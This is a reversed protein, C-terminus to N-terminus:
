LQWCSLIPFINSTWKKSKLLCLRLSRSSHTKLSERQDGNCIAEELGYDDEESNCNTKERSFNEEDLENSNFLELSEKAMNTEEFIEIEEQSNMKSLTQKTELSLVHMNSEKSSHKRALDLRTPKSSEGIEVDQIQINKTKEDRKIKKTIRKRKKNGKRLKSGLTFKKKCDNCFFCPQVYGVKEKNNFYRL